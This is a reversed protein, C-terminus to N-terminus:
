GKIDELIKKANKIFVTHAAEPGVKKEVYAKAKKMQNERSHHVDSAVFDVLGEKFLAMIKKKYARKREGVIADANVQILGGMEKIAYAEEIGAYVYREYHAVIAKYGHRGVEYVVDSIDIEKYYDFELLVYKSDGLTGVEGKSLRALFKKDVLNEHGLYINIPLKERKVREKLELFRKEKERRSFAYERRAHPTCIVDTVGQRVEETLMEVSADVDPSGDDVCHLVHTHVDIM